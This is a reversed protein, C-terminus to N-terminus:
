YPVEGGSVCVGEGGGLIKRGGGRDKFTTKIKIKNKVKKNTM